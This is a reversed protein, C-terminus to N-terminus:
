PNLFVNNFYEIKFVQRGFVDLVISRQEALAEAKVADIRQFENDHHFLLIADLELIRSFALFDELTDIHHCLIDAVM